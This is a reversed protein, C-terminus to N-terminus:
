KIIISSSSFTDRWYNWWLYWQLTIIDWSNVDPTTYTYDVNFNHWDWWWKYYLNEGRVWNIAIAIRMQKTSAQVNWSIYYTWCNTATWTELTRRFGEWRSSTWSTHTYETWWTNAAHCCDHTNCNESTIPQSDLCLDWNCVVTRSRTWWWCISSCEWWERVEWINKQCIWNSLNYWDNCSVINCNNLSDLEWLWNEVKCWLSKCEITWDSSFGNLYTWDECSNFMNSFYTWYIGWFTFWTPPNAPWSITAYSVSIFTVVIILALIIPKIVNNVLIKELERM